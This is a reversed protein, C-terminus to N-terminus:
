TGAFSGAARRPPSSRRSYSKSRRKSRPQTRPASAATCTVCSARATSSTRRRCRPPAYRTSIGHDVDHVIPFSLPLKGLFKEVNERDKDVSVGVVVLGQAQYKKYLKDLLPLEERCPGCWSAWFDVVVVKGALSAATVKNGSLDKQGLEPLKAGADLAAVFPPTVLLVALLFALSSVLRSQM